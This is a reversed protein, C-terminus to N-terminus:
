LQQLLHILGSLHQSVQGDASGRAIGIFPVGYVPFRYLGRKLVLFYHHLHHIVIILDGVGNAVVVVDM